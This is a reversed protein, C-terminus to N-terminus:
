FGLINYDSDSFRDGLPFSLHCTHLLSFVSLLVHSIITSTGKGIVIEVPQQEQWSDEFKHGSSQVWARYHVTFGFTLCLGMIECNKLGCFLYGSIYMRQFRLSSSTVHLYITKERRFCAELAYWVVFYISIILWQFSSFFFIFLFTWDMEIDFALLFAPFPAPPYFMVCVTLTLSM